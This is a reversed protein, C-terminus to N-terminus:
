PGGSASALVVSPDVRLQDHGEHSFKDSIESVVDERVVADAGLVLTTDAHHREMAERPTDDLSVVARM